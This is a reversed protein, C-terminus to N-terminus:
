KRMSFRLGLRSISLLVIQIILVAVVAIAALNIYMEQPFKVAIGIVAWVIVLPYTVEKYRRIFITGFVGAILILLAAWTQGSFVLSKVGVFDLLDTVNAITAVSIWGLYIGFPVTTFLPNLDKSNKLVLYTKILSVLLILMLPLTFPILLWHWTFIWVSNAINGIIIFPAVEELVPKNTISQYFAYALIGLYIVGWIAFVYGAPVFFVKFMDSIAATSLNNYPLINALANIVIMAVTTIAVLLKSYKGM